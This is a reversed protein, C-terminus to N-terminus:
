HEGLRAKLARIEEELRRERTKDCAYVTFHDTGKPPTIVLEWVRGGAEVTVPRNQHSDAAVIQEFVSEPVTQGTHLDWTEVIPRAAQNAYALQGESTVRLVPHICEASFRALKKLEELAARHEARMRAEAVERRVATVLRALNQKMIFDHAGSQMIEVAQEEGIAGSVVIFPLDLWSARLIQLAEPGRFDILRYDCLLVDWSHERLAQALGQPTEVRQWVPDYGGRELERALLFADDESDEIILVRLTEAM